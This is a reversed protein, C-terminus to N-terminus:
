EQMKNTLVSGGQQTHLIKASLMTLSKHMLSIYLDEMKRTAFGSYM